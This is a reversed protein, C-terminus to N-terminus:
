KNTEKGSRSLVKVLIILDELPESGVLFSFYYSNGKDKIIKNNLNDIWNTLVVLPINVRAQFRTFRTIYQNEISTNDTTRNKLGKPYGRKKLTLPVPISM